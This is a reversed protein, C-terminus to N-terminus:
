NNYAVNNEEIVKICHKLNDKWDKNIELDNKSTKYINKLDTLFEQSNKLQMITEFLLSGFNNSNLEARIIEYIRRDNRNALGIIAEQKTQDDKDFCHKYLMNRIESNDAEIQTGLGFVAWDRVKPSRDDSLKLLINIAIENTLTLIAFVLAYRINKSKSDTFQSLTKLQQKTIKKNNHGIAILCSVLLEEEESKLNQFLKDLLDNLFKKRYIGLQSIIDIGVIKDKINKSNILCFCQEIMEDDIFNRLEFIANWYSNQTKANLAKEFLNQRNKTKIV